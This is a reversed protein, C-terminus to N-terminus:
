LMFNHQIRTFQKHNIVIKKQKMSTKGITEKNSLPNTHKANQQEKQKKERKEITAMAMTAKSLNMEAQFCITQNRM